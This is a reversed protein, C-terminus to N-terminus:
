HYGALNKLFRFIILILYGLYPMCMQFNEASFIHQVSSTKEQPHLIMLGLSLSGRQNLQQFPLQLIQSPFTVCLSILYGQLYKQFTLYLYKQHTQLSPNHLLYKQHLHLIDGQNSRLFFRTM